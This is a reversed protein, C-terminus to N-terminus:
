KLKTSNENLEGCGDAIGTPKRILQEVIEEEKVMRKRDIDVRSFGCDIVEYVSNVVVCGVTGHKNINRTLPGRLGKKGTSSDSFMLAPWLAAVYPYKRTHPRRTQTCDM